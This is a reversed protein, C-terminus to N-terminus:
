EVQDNHTECGDNFVSEIRIRKKIFRISPLLLWIILSQNTEKKNKKFEIRIQRVRMVIRELRRGAPQVLTM